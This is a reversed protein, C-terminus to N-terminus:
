LALAFEESRSTGDLHLLLQKLATETATLQTLIEKKNKLDACIQDIGQQL